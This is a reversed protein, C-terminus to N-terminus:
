WWTTKTRSNQGVVMGAYIDMQPAVFLVSREQLSQLAYSTALGSEKAVLVGASRRTANNSRPVYGHFSHHMLGTGKTQSLLEAKFGILSRATIVGELRVRNHGDTHMNKMALGRKGLNEIVVGQYTQEV